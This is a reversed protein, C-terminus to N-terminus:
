PLAQPACCPPPKLQTWAMTLRRTRTTKGQIAVASWPGRYFDLPDGTLWWNHRVLLPGLAAVARIRRGGQEGTARL